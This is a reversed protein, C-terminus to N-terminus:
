TYISGAQGPENSGTCQLRHDSAKPCRKNGCEPCLIMKSCSLAESTGGIAHYIAELVADNILGNVSELTVSHFVHTIPTKCSCYHRTFNIEYYLASANLICEYAMARDTFPNFIERRCEGVLIVVMPETNQYQPKSVGVVKYGLWEALRKSIEFQKAMKVENKTQQDNM